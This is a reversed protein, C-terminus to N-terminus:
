QESIQRQLVEMTALADISRQNRRALQPQLTAIHRAYELNGVRLAFKFDALWQRNPQPQINKGYRSWWDKYAFQWTILQLKDIHDLGWSCAVQAQHLALFEPSALISTDSDCYVDVWGLAKLAVKTRLWTSDNPLLAIDIDYSQLTTVFHRGVIKLAHHDKEVQASYRDFRGDIFTKSQPRWFALYGGMFYPNFINGNLDNQSLYEIARHHFKLSDYASDRYFQRQFDTNLPMYTKRTSPLSFHISVCVLLLGSLIWQWTSSFPLPAHKIVAVYVIPVMWYFRVAYLIALMALLGHVIDVLQVHQFNKMRSKILQRAFRYGLWCLMLFALILLTSLIPSSLPLFSHKGFPQFHGWEDVVRALPNNANHTFYFYILRPGIPNLCLAVITALMVAIATRRKFPPHKWNGISASILFPFAVMVLSHANAWICAIAVFLVSKSTSWKSDLQRFLTILSFCCMISILDPRLQYLRQYSFSLFLILGVTIQVRSLNASRLYFAVSLLCACVLLIHLFRLSYLGLAQHTVALMVQFLWEHYIPEQDLRATFLLPDATPFGQQLFVQGLRLHWWMDDTYLPRAVQVLVITFTILLALGLVIRLCLKQNKSTM